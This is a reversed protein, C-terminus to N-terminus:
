GNNNAESKKLEKIYNKFKSIEKKINSNPNHYKGFMIKREIHKNNVKDTLVYFGGNQYKFVNM